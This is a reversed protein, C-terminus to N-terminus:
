RFLQAESVFVVHRLLGAPFANLVDTNFREALQNYGDHSITDNRSALNATLRQLSAADLESLGASELAASLAQTADTLAENADYKLSIDEAQTLKQRAELVNDIRSDGAIYKNALTTLSYSLDLRENLDNQISLSDRNVGEYFVTDVEAKLASLSRGTGLLVSLVIVAASLIVAFNHKKLMM